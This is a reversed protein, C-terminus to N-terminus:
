DLKSDIYKKVFERTQTSKFLFLMLSIAVGVVFKQISLDFGFYYVFSALMAIMGLINSVINKFKDGM